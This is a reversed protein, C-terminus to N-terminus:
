YLKEDEIAMAKAFFYNVGNSKYENFYSVLENYYDKIYDIKLDSEKCQKILLNDNFNNLHYSYFDNFEKITDINFEKKYRYSNLKNNLNVYVDADILDKNMELYEKLLDHKIEVQGRIQILTNKIKSKNIKIRVLIQIVFAIVGVLIASLVGLSIWVIESM